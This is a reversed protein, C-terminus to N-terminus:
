IEQNLENTATEYSAQDIQDRAADCILKGVTFFDNKSMARGIEAWKTLPIDNAASMANYGPRHTINTALGSAKTVGNPLNAWAAFTLDDAREKIADEMSYPEKKNPKM